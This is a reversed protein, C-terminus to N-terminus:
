HQLSLHLLTLQIKGTEIHTLPVSAKNQKTRHLNIKLIRQTHRQGHRKKEKRERM